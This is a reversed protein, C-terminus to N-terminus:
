VVFTKKLFEIDGSCREVHRVRFSQPSLRNSPTLSALLAPPWPRFERIPLPTLQCWHINAFGESILTLYYYNYLM